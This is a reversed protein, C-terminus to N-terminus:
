SLSTSLTLMGFLLCSSSALLALTLSNVMYSAMHEASETIYPLSIKVKAITFLNNSFLLQMANVRGM